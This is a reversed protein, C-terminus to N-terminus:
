KTKFSSVRFYFSAYTVTLHVPLLDRTTVTPSNAWVAPASTIALLPVRSSDAQTASYGAPFIM